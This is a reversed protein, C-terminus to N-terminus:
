SPLYVTKFVTYSVAIFMMCLAATVAYQQERRKFLGIWTEYGKAVLLAIPVMAPYCYRGQAQYDGTYSKYVALGISIAGSIVVCAIMILLLPDVKRKKIVADILKYVLGLAGVLVCALVGDYVATNECFVNMQGFVAVFSQWTTKLYEFPYVTLMEYFTVGLELPSTAVSPKYTYDGYVEGYYRRTKFGLLDNYLVVHRVFSYAVLAVIIVAIITFFKAFGKYDKRNQYFYSVVFFFISMLIWSYSNYYALACVSVGLALIVASRLNWNNQVALVWAYVIVASGFLALSDNNVYSSLFAFQPMAAVFVIMIWRAPSAFLRKSIKILFYVTGTGACVSVMRAALLLEFDGTVFLSAIKMFVYGLQNCLVTPFHAYSFGWPLYILEDGVPLRNNAFLFQTVQYRMEEDPAYDLQKTIAWAAYFLFCGLCFVVEYVSLNYPTKPKQHWWLLWLGVIALATAIVAVRVFSFPNSFVRKVSIPDPTAIVDGLVFDGDVDVRIAEYEERPIHVIMRKAAFPIRKIATGNEASFFEGAKAYYVQLETKRVVPQAFEILISEVTENISSFCLQPDDGKQVYSDGSVTYQVPCFTVHESHLLSVSQPSYFAKTTPMFLVLEALLALLLALVLAAIWQRNTKITFKRM